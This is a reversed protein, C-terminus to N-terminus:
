FALNAGAYFRQYTQHLPEGQLRFIRYDLRVRLPGVLRIKAGGGVNTGVHTEQRGGLRERFVGGGTTGYFQARFIDVPTQLLVNGSGTQLSPLGDVLDEVANAYEFEFGVIVLGFGLAFGRLGHNQPTSTIGLFATADASVTSVSGLLLGCVLCLVVLRSRM